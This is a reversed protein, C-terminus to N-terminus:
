GGCGNRGRKEKLRHACAGEEEEELACAEVGQLPRQDPEGLAPAGLLRPEKRSPAGAAPHGEEEVRQLQEWPAWGKRGREATWPSCDLARGIRRRARAGQERPADHSRRMAGGGGCWMEERIQPVRCCCGQTDGAGSGAPLEAGGRAWWPARRREGEPM